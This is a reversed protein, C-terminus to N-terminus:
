PAIPFFLSFTTGEGLKTKVDLKGKHAKIVGHVIALGLGTGKGAEKTTFFPEFMRKMVDERIGTGTDSVHIAIFPHDTADDRWIESAFTLTGGKPMADRANIALNLFAQYLQDLDGIINARADLRREIIIDKPFSHEIMEAVQEVALVCDILQMESKKERAFYLLKEVISKGRKVAREIMDMREALREENPKQKVLQTAVLISAMINNFDHAMGGALAGIAEMKQSQLLQQEMQKRETIDRANVIVGRITPEDLQRNLIVEFHKLDGNRHYRRCEFRLESADRLIAEFAARCKPLDESCVGLFADKGILSEPPFGLSKEVSPSIYAIKGREDVIATIDSSNQILLRFRRESEELLRRANQYETIDLLQGIFRPPKGEPADLLRLHLEGVVERGDKTKYRKDLVVYDTKGSMLDSYALLNKPMDDPHSVDAVKMSLLEDRSYGFLKCLAPNVELFKGGYEVIAVGIPALEFLQRFRMESKAIREQAEKQETVDVSMGLVLAVSGDGDRKFVTERTQLWRYDGNANQARIESEVIIDAKADRWVNLRTACEQLDDPHAREEFFREGKERLEDATLGYFALCARNAFLIAGTKVDWVYILHPSLDLIRQIFAQSDRLRAEYLKQETVDKVAGYIQVVRRKEIDWIPFAYDRVWRLEGSKTILRLEYEVPNGNLVERLKANTLEVDDPHVVTLWSPKHLLDEFSYGTIRTAADTIWERELTGDDKVRYSYAYDSVMESVIRFREESEQLREEFAKRASIDEIVGVGYQIRGKADRVLSATVSAWFYSGDKRKVRKEVRYCSRKQNIINVRYAEVEREYDDPHALDKTTFHRLERKSYGLMNRLADNYALLKNEVSEVCFGLGADDFFRSLFEIEKLFRKPLKSRSSRARKPSRRKTTKAPASQRSTNGRKM